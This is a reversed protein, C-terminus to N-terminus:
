IEMKGTKQGLFVRLGKCCRLMELFFGRVQWFRRILAYYACRDPAELVRGGSSVRVQDSARMGSINRGCDEAANRGGPPANEELSFAIFAIGDSESIRERCKKVRDSVVADAGFEL